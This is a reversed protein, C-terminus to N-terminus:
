SIKLGISPYRRIFSCCKLSLASFILNNRRYQVTCIIGIAKFRRPSDPHLIQSHRLPAIEYFIAFFLPCPFPHFWTKSWEHVSVQYWRCLFRRSPHSKAVIQFRVANLEKLFSCLVCLYKQSSSKLSEYLLLPQLSSFVEKWLVSSPDSWSALRDVLDYM